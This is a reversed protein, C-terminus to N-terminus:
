MKDVLKNLATELLEVVAQILAHEGNELLHQKALTVAQAVLKSSDNIAQSAEM